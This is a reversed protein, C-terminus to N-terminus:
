AVPFTQNKNNCLFLVFLIYIVGQQGESSMEEININEDLLELDPGWM